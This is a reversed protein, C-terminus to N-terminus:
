IAKVEIKINNFLWNIALTNKVAAKELKDTYVSSINVGNSVCKLGMLKKVSKQKAEKEYNREAQNELSMWGKKAKIKIKEQNIEYVTELCM